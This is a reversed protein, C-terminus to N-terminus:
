NLTSGAYSSPVVPVMCRYLWNRPGEGLVAPVRMHANQYNLRPMVSIKSVDRPHQMSFTGLIPSGFLALNFPFGRSASDSLPPTCMATREMNGDGAASIPSRASQISHWENQDIGHCFSPGQGMVCLLASPHPPVINHEGASPGCQELHLRVERHLGPLQHHRPM